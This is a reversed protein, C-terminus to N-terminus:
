RHGAAVESSAHLIFQAIDDVTLQNVLDKPQISARALHKLKADLFPYTERILLLSDANLQGDGDLALQERSSVFLRFPSKISFEKECRFSLDLLDISNGGLAGYEAAPTVDEVEAALCDAVILPLKEMVQDYSLICLDTM